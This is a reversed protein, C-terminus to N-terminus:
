QPREEQSLISNSPLVPPPFKGSLIEDTRQKLREVWSIIHCGDARPNSVIDVFASEYKNFVDLEELTADGLLASCILGDLVFFIKRNSYGGISLRVKVYGSVKVITKNALQVFGKGRELKKVKWGRQRAYELSVLDVDSGTDANAQVSCSDLPCSLRRRPVGTYCLRWFKKMSSMFREQLRHRFRTLNETARLFFGRMILPVTCSKVVFFRCSLAKLDEGPFSVSVAAEGISHFKKGCAETFINQKTENVEIHIGLATAVRELMKNEASMTDPLTDVVKGNIDIQLFFRQRHKPKLKSKDSVDASDDGEGTQFSTGGLSFRMARTVSFFDSLGNKKIGCLFREESANKQASEYHADIDGLYLFGPRQMKAKLYGELRAGMLFGSEDELRSSLGAIYFTLGFLRRM